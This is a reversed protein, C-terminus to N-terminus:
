SEANAAREMLDFKTRAHAPLDDPTRFTQIRYGEKEAMMRRQILGKGTEMDARIYRIREHTDDFTFTKSQVIEGKATNRFTPDGNSQDLVILTAGDAEAAAKAERYKAPDRADARSISHKPRHGKLHWEGKADKEFNAARMKREHEEEKVIDIITKKPPQAELKRQMDKKEDLIRTNFSHLDDLRSAQDTVTETLKTVQQMLAQLAATTEDPM